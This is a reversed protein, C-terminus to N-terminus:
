AGRSRPIDPRWDMGQHVVGFGSTRQLQGDPPQGGGFHCPQMLGNGQFGMDSPGNSWPRGVRWSTVVAQPSQLAGNQPQIPQLHIPVPVALPLRPQHATPQRVPMTSLQQNILHHGLPAQLRFGHLPQLPLPQPQPQTGQHPQWEPIDDDDNWPQTELRACQSPPRNVESAGMKGLGYKNILERMQRTPRPSPQVRPHVTGKHSGQLPNPVPFQSVLPKSSNAFDFEPLDDEDRGTAARPGFGPPIDDIPDDDSPPDPKISPQGVPPPLIPQKANAVADKEQQRKLSSHQKKSNQRQFSPMRPSDATVHVKRWVVIGVLGNEVSNLSESLEKPLHMGFMAIMKGHPPCFYLEVGPAPEAFGVREDAVYSDAVQM